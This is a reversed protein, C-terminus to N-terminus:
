LQIREPTELEKFAGAVPAMVYHKMSFVGGGENHVATFSASRFDAVYQWSIVRAWPRAADNLWTLAAQRGTEIDDPADSLYWEAGINLATLVVQKYRDTGVQEIARVYHQKVSSSEWSGAGNGGPTIAASSIEWTAFKANLAADRETVNM